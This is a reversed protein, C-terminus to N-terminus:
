CGAKKNEDWKEQYRQEMVEIDQYFREGQEESYVGLNEPFYEVHSDIFRLKLNMLCKLKQFSDVKRLVEKEWDPSKINGLFKQVVNKFRLWARKQTSIMKTVFVNDKLLKRIQPGDFIVENIKADSM